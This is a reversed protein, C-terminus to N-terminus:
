HTKAPGASGAAAASSPKAKAKGTASSMDVQGNFTAGESLVLSPTILMGTVDASAALEVREAALLQGALSGQITVRTGQVDADVHGTPAILLAGEDMKLKGNVRGHVTIDELSSLDGTIVISPGITTM